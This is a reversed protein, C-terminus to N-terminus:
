PTIFRHDKTNGDKGKLEHIEKERSQFQLELLGTIKWTRLISDRGEM